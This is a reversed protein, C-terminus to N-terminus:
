GANTSKATQAQKAILRYRAALSSSTFRMRLAPFHNQWDELVGHTGKALIISAVQSLSFCIGRYETREDFPWTVDIARGTRDVVWAHQMPFGFRPQMAYGECYRLTRPFQYAVNFANSFCQRDSGRKIREPLPVPRYTKGCRVVLDQVGYYHFSSLAGAQKLLAAEAELM